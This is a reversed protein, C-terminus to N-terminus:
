KGLEASRSVVNKRAGEDALVGLADFHRLTLDEVLKVYWEREDASAADWSPNPRSPDAREMLWM